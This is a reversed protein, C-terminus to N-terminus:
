PGYRWAGGEDEVGVVFVTPSASGIALANFRPQELGPPAGILEWQAGDDQSVMLGDNDRLIYLTGAKLRDFTIATIPAAYGFILTPL